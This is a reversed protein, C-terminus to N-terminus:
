SGSATEASPAITNGTFGQSITVTLNATYAPENRPAVARTRSLQALVSEDSMLVALSTPALATKRLRAGGLCPNLRERGSPDSLATVVHNRRVSWVSKSNPGGM